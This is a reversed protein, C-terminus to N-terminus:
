DKVEHRESKKPVKPTDREVASVADAFLQDLGEKPEWVLIAGERHTM